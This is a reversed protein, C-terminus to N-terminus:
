PRVSQQRGWSAVIDLYTSNPQYEARGLNNIMHILNTREAGALNKDAEVKLKPGLTDRYFRLRDRIKPLREAYQRTVEQLEARAAEIEAQPAKAKALDRIRQQLVPYDKMVAEVWNVTARRFKQSQLAIKRAGSVLGQPAPKGIFLDVSLRGCTLSGVKQPNALAPCTGVILAMAALIKRWSTM